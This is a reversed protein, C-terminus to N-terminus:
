MSAMSYHASTIEWRLTINSVTIDFLEKNTSESSFVHDYTFSRDKRGAYEYSSIEDSLNIQPNLFSVTKDDHNILTKSGFLSHNREKQNQPRVRVFM